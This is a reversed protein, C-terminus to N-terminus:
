AGRAEEAEKYKRHQELIHEHSAGKSPV